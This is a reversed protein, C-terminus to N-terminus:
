RFRVGNRVTCPAETRPMQTKEIEHSRFFVSHEECTDAYHGSSSDKLSNGRTIDHFDHVRRRCGVMCRAISSSASIKSPLALACTVSGTDVCVRQSSHAFLVTRFPTRNRKRKRVINQCCIQEYSSPQSWPIHRLNASRMSCDTKKPIDPTKIYILKAWLSVRLYYFCAAGVRGFEHKVMYCSGVFGVPSHLM